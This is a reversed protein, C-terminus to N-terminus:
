NFQFKGYDEFQWFTRQGEQVATELNFLEEIWIGAGPFRGEAAKANLSSLKARMDALNSIYQTVSEESKKRDSLNLLYDYNAKSGRCIIEELKDTPTFKPNILKGIHIKNFNEAAIITEMETIKKRNLNMLNCIKIYRIINELYKIHLNLLIREREIRMGYFKKRIPFWKYIVSEYDNFMEVKLEDDILNIHSDMRSRLQFYEEIGDTFYSDGLTDLKELVGPKLKIEIHVKMDDSLNNIGNQAILSCEDSMKKKMDNVYPVTWVRLPLETITIMNKVTNLTYSGFSFQEGRITKVEGRWEFPAGSHVAVPMKLLQANDGYRILRRVNEIVKFVDRGWTKLKWGHAPLETSEIIAMPIIPVFYKPESRQGEDFNFPLLWYDASPFLLSTIRQNLRCWIYRPSAADNGGERRSGFNSLPVIIPLQKGGPAVFGKGTISDALGAEGHHYNEMRAIEGALQAVKMPKNTAGFAKLIGDLIKRGSQNQGDIVNDLKRELNDRQYVDTEHELHFSCSIQKTKMQQELQTINPINVPKSLQIKRLDSNSGFYIEFLEHSREDTYYTFLHEHFLKFMNITEDRSHTGLGKYYKPNYGTIDNFAAFVNYENISYFALIKGGHRPYLRIIPTCFWKIYGNQLLNPWFLEFTNLLLGLINGKGDLDQDVCAAICGYNLESMEKEYTPSKPDYKYSNNLGTVGMLVNMFVNNLLKTSKKIFSGSSTEIIACERRANMIVGGLSIAGYLEFGLNHSIGTCVQTMASDGEVPILTCELSRKKGAEKAREYKDYEQKKKKGPIEKEELIFISEVIQDRIKETINSIFKTDLEYGSLRAVNIDLIDKRQGTWSPNPIKSNVLLFINNHVYGPSFKLNKDHFLKSIKDKVGDYLKNLLYKTHRGERVVVGNVISMQKIQLDSTNLIVACIEWPYKYPARVGNGAEPTIVTKVQVKGPFLLSAIDGIDKIDLIEDNFYIEVPSRKRKSRGKANDNCEVAYKAYAAAFIARTRVIDVLSDYVENDFKKYEFLGIYDPMFSITTHPITCEAPLSHNSKLDIITPTEEIEKHNRWRQTFYKGRISDVTEIIFETSFCNSLKAGLGNTGGIICDDTRKRNSGQFLTGFIFTPVWMERGLKETATQHIVVEIGPGNNYIRVRGDRDFNIKIVTVPVSTGACRILHDLANVIPEDIIKWWAPSYKVNIYDGFLVTSKKIVFETYEIQKASGAAWDKNIVSEEVTTFLYKDDINNQSAM